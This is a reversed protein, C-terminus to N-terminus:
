PTFTLTKEQCTGAMGNQSCVRLTASMAHGAPDDAFGDSTTYGVEGAELNLDAATACASSYYPFNDQTTTKTVSTNQDTVTVKDSELTLSGTNTIKFKIRYSGACFDTSVYSVNFTVPPTATFRPTPTPPIPILPLGSIDGSLTAYKTWLWCTIATNSPLRIIISDSLSSRGVVEAQEGVQLVGLLDYATTPGTRCNINVSVTVMPFAPTLTYTESPTLSPTFTFEPTSTALASRTAAAGGAQDAQATLTSAVMVAVQTEISLTSGQDTGNAAPQGGLQSCASALVLAVLVFMTPFKKKFMSVGKKPVDISLKM